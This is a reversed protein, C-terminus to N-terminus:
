AAKPLTPSVSRSAEPQETRSGGARDLLVGIGLGCLSSLLVLGCTLPTFITMPNLLMLNSPTGLWPFFPVLM